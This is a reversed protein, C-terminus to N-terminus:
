IVMYTGGILNTIADLITLLIQPHLRLRNAAKNRRPPVVRNARLVCTQLRYGRCGLRNHDDLNSINFFVVPSGSNLDCARSLLAALQNRGTITKNSGIM